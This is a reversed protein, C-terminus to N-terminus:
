LLESLGGSQGDAKRTSSCDAESVVERRSGGERYVASLCPLSSSFCACSM